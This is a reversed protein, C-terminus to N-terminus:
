IFGAKKFFNMTSVHSELDLGKKLISLTKEQDKSYSSYIKKLFLNYASADEKKLYSRFQALSKKSESLIEGDLQYQIVSMTAAAGIHKENIKKWINYALAEAETPEEIGFAETRVRWWENAEEPNYDSLDPSPTNIIKEAIAILDNRKTNIVFQHFLYRRRLSAVTLVCVTKLLHAVDRHTLAIEDIISNAKDQASKEEPSAGRSRDLWAKKTESKQLAVKIYAIETKTLGHDVNASEQELDEPISLFKSGIILSGAWFADSVKEILSM